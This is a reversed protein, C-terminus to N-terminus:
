DDRARRRDAHLSRSSVFTGNAAFEARTVHQFSADALSTGGNAQARLENVGLRSLLQPGFSVIPVEPRRANKCRLVVERGADDCGHGVAVTHQHMRYPGRHPPLVVDVKRWHLPLELVERVAFLNRWRGVHLKLASQLAYHLLVVPSRVQPGTERLDVEVFVRKAEAGIRSREIPSQSRGAPRDLEVPCVLERQDRQRLHVEEPPIQRRKPRRRLARHGEIWEVGVRDPDQAQLDHVRALEFAAGHDHEARHFKVGVVRTPHVESGEPLVEVLALILLGDLARVAHVHGSKEPWKEHHGRGATVEVPAGFGLRRYPIQQREIRLKRRM